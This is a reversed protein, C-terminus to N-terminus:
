RTLILVVKNTHLINGRDDLVLYETSKLALEVGYGTLWVPEPTSTTTTPPKWRLVYQVPNHHTLEVLFKHVINFQASTIDAYFIITNLNDGTTTSELIRENPRLEISRSM